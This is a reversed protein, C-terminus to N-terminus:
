VGGVWQSVPVDKSHFEEFCGFHFYASCQRCVLSTKSEYAQSGRAESIMCLRCRRRLETKTLFHRGMLRSSSEPLCEHHKQPVSLCHSDSCGNCVDDKGAEDSGSLATSKPYTPLSWWNDRVQLQGSASKRMFSQLSNEMRSGCVQLEGSNPQRMYSQLSGKM